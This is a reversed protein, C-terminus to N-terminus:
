ITKRHMANWKEADNLMFVLTIVKIGFYLAGGASMWGDEIPGLHNSQL